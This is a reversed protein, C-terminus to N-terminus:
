DDATTVIKAERIFQESNLKTWETLNKMWTKSSNVARFFDERAPRFIPLMHIFLNKKMQLYKSNNNTAKCHKQKLHKNKTAKCKSTM